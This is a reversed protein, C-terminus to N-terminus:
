TTAKKIKITYLTVDKFQSNVWLLYDRLKVNEMFRSPASGHQAMYLDSSDYKHVVQSHNIGGIGKYQIVDGEFLNKYIEYYTSDTLAETLSYVKFSYARNYGINNYNAWHQMFQNVGTWSYSRQPPNSGYYYWSSINSYDPYGIMPLGGARLVQSVFNTCDGGSKLYNYYANNGPYGAYAEAYEKAKKRVYLSNASYSNTFNGASAATSFLISFIIILILVFKIKKSM